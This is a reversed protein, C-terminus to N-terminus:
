PRTHRETRRHRHLKEFPNKAQKRGRSYLEDMKELDEEGMAENEIDELRRRKEDGGGEVEKERLYEQRYEEFLTKLKNPDVETMVAEEIDQLKKSKAAGEGKRKRSREELRVKANEVRIDEELHREMRKRCHDAHPQVHLGRLLASCGGCRDTFGYKEFDVKKM